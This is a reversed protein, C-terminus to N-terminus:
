HPSPANAPDVVTHTHTKKYRRQYLLFSLLPSAISMYALFQEIYYKCLKQERM